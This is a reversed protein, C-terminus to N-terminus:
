RRVLKAEFLYVQIKKMAEGMFPIKSLSDKLMIMITNAKGCRYLLYWMYIWDTYIQHNTVLINSGKLEFLFDSNEKQNLSKDLYFVTQMPCFVQTLFSMFLGFM